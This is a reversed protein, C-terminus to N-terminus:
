AAPVRRPRPTEALRLGRLPEYREIHLGLFMELVRAAEGQVPQPAPDVFLDVLPSRLLRRLYGLCEPSIRWAGDVGHVCDHCVVGGQLGAFGPYGDFTRGCEVCTDLEPRHGLFSVAKIEFARFVAPLAGVPATELCELTRVSLPYLRGPPEQGTLVRLLIELVASAHAFRGLDSGLGLFPELLLAQSLLQLDRGSRHYYVIDSVAFLELAAGHRPKPGRVGKALLSVLGQEATYVTLIKSTDRFPIVRLILAESKAIAM